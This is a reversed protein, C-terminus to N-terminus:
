LISWTTYFEFADFFNLYLGCESSDRRLDCHWECESEWKHQKATKSNM